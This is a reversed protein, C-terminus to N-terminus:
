EETIINKTESLKYYIKDDNLIQYGKTSIVDNTEYNVIYYHNEPLKATINLENLIEQNWVYYANYHEEEENIIGDQKIKLIAEYDVDSLKEGKLLDKNDEVISQEAILKEKAQIILMETHINQLDAQSLISIGTNTVGRIILVLTTILIILVIITIVRKKL